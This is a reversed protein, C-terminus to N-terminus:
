ASAPTVPSGSFSSIVLRADDRGVAIVRIGAIRKEIAGARLDGRPRERQVAPRMRQRHLHRREAVYKKSKLSEAAAQCIWASGPRNIM